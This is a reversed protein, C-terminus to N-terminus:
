LIFVLIVRKVKDINEKKAGISSHAIKNISIMKTSVITLSIDILFIAHVSPLFYLSTNWDLIKLLPYM